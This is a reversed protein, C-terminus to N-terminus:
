RMYTSFTTGINRFASDVRTLVGMGALTTASCILALLLFFEIVQQNEERLLSNWMKSLKTPKPNANTM